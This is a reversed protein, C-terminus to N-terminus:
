LLSCSKLVGHPAVFLAITTGMFRILIKGAGFAADAAVLRVFGAFHVTVRASRAIVTRGAHRAGFLARVRCSVERKRSVPEMASCASQQEMAYPVTWSTSASAM